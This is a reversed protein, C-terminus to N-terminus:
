GYSGRPSTSRHMSTQLIVGPTVTYCDGAQLKREHHLRMIAENVKWDIPVIPKLPISDLAVLFDELFARRYLIACVTNTFPRTSQLIRSRSDWESVVSVLEEVGLKELTFSESLNVFKPQPSDEWVRLHADLVRAFEQPDHAVADDELILVWDSHAGLGERLLALHSLEINALRVLRREQAKRTFSSSVRMRSLRLRAVVSRLRLMVAARRPLDDSHLYTLWREEISFEAAVSAQIAQPTMDVTSLDALNEASISSTAAWGLASLHKELSRLLGSPSSSEPFRTAPHTILGLFISHTM